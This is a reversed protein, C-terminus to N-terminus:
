AYKQKKSPPELNAAVEKDKDQKKEQPKYLVLEDGKQVPCTNVACPIKVIAKETKGVVDVSVEFTQLAMNADKKTHVVRMVWYEGICEREVCKKLHYKTKDVVIEVNSLLPSNKPPLDVKYTLPVLRLKGEAAKDLAFLKNSPKEQARFEITSYKNDALLKRFAVAVAGEDFFKAMSTSEEANNGPYDKFLEIRTKCIKYIAMMDKLSIITVEKAKAGDPLIRRSGVSGDDNVYDIIYQIDEPTNHKKPEVLVGVKFGANNVTVKGANSESGDASYEIVNPPSEEVVKTAGTAGTADDSKKGVLKEVLNKSIDEVSKFENSLEFIFAAIDIAAKGVLLLVEHSDVGEPMASALEHAKNLVAEGEKAKSNNKSALSKIMGATVANGVNEREAKNTAQLLVCAHMINPLLEKTPLKLKALEDFFNGSVIRNEPMLSELITLTKKALQQKTGGGYKSLFKVHSPVDRLRPPESAAVNREVADWDIMKDRSNKASEVATQVTFLMQEEWSEGIPLNLLIHTDIIVASIIPM